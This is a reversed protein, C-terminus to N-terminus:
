KSYYEKLAEDLKSTRQFIYFENKTEKSLANCIYPIKKEQRLYSSCDLDYCYFFEENVLQNFTKDMFKMLREIQM